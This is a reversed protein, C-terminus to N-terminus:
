AHTIDIHAALSVGICYMAHGLCQSGAFPEPIHNDSAHTNDNILRIFEQSMVGPPVIM